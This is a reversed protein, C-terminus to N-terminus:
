AAQLQPCTNISLKQLREGTSGYFLLTNDESEWIATIQVSRPGHLTFMIGCSNGKRQITRETFPFVGVEFNNQDCLRQNVFERLEDLSDIELAIEM